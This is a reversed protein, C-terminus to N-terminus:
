RDHEEQETNAEPEEKAELFEKDLSLYRDIIEISEDIAVDYGNNFDDYEDYSEKSHRKLAIEERVKYRVESLKKLNRLWRAMQRHEEEAKQCDEAGKMDEIQTLREVFRVNREVLEEEHRIAEELTM